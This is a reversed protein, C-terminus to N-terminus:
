PRARRRRTRSRLALGPARGDRRKLLLRVRRPLHRGDVDGRGRRLHLREGALDRVAAQRRRDRRRGEDAVRALVHRRVDVDAARDDRRDVLGVAAGATVSGALDCPHIEGVLHLVDAAGGVRQELERLDVDLLNPGDRLRHLPAAPQGRLGLDGVRDEVAALRDGARGVVADARDLLVAVGAAGVHHELEPAVVAVLLDAQEALAHQGKRHDVLAPEDAPCAVGDRDRAEGALLLGHGLPDRSSSRPRPQATWDLLDLLAARVHEGRPRAGAAARREHEVAVQVRRVGTALRPRLADLAELGDPTSRSPRM